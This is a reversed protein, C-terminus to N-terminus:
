TTPRRQIIYIEDQNKKLLGAGEIQGEAAQGLIEIHNKDRIPDESERNRTLFYTQKDVLQFEELTIVQKVLSVMSDPRLIKRLRRSRFDM